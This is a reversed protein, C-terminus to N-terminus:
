CSIGTDEIRTDGFLRGQLDILHQLIIQLFVVDDIVHHSEMTLTIMGQPISRRATQKHENVRLVAFRSM